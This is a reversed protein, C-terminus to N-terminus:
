EKDTVTCRQRHDFLWNISRPFTFCEFLPSLQKERNSFIWKTNNDAGLLEGGWSASLELQQSSRGPKILSLSFLCPFLWLFILTPPPHFFFLARTVIFKTYFFTAAIDCCDLEDRLKILELTTSCLSLSLPRPRLFPLAELASSSSQPKVTM